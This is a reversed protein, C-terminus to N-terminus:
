FEGAQYRDALLSIANMEYPTFPQHQAALVTLFMEDNAYIAEDLRAELEESSATHGSSCRYPQTNSTDRPKKRIPPIHLSCFFLDFLFQM